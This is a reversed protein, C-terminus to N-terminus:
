GTPDLVDVENAYTGRGVKLNPGWSGSTRRAGGGIDLFASANKGSAGTTLDLCNDRISIGDWGYGAILANMSTLYNGWIIVNEAITDPAGLVVGKDSYDGASAELHIGSLECHFVSYMHVAIANSSPFGEITMDRIWISNVQDSPGGLRIGTTFNQINGGSI